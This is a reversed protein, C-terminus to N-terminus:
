RKKGQRRKRRERREEVRSARRDQGVRACLSSRALDREVKRAHVWLGKCDAGPMNRALAAHWQQRDHALRYADFAGYVRALLKKVKKGVSLDGVGRERLSSDLDRVFAEMMARVAVARQLQFRRTYFYLHLTLCDLRGELTDAVLGDEFLGRARSDRLACAYLRAGYLREIRVRLRRFRLYRWRSLLDLEMKRLMM